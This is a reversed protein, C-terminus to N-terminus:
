NELMLEHIGLENCMAELRHIETGTLIFQVSGQNYEVLEKLNQIAQESDFNATVMIADIGHENAFDIAKKQNTFSLEDFVHNLIVQMGYAAGILQELTDTDLEQKATAAGIAVGDIGLAQAEFIDAEMIKIELDNYHYDNLNPRILADVTTQQDRTFKVSEALFGKSVTTHQNSLMIKQYNNVQSLENISSIEKAKIIM